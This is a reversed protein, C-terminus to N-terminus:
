SMDKGSRILDTSELFGHWLLLWGCLLYSVHKPHVALSCLFSLQGCLKEVLADSANPDLDNETAPSDQTNCSACCCGQGGSVPQWREQNHCDLTELCQWIVHLTSDGWYLVVTRSLLLSWCPLLHNWHGTWWRSPHFNPNSTPAVSPNCPLSMSSLRTLWTSSHASRLNLLLWNPYPLSPPTRYCIPAPPIGSSDSLM